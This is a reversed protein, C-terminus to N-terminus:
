CWGNWTHAPLSWELCFESSERWPASLATERAGAFVMLGLSGRSAVGRQEGRPAEQAGGGRPLSIRLWLREIGDSYGKMDDLLRTEAREHLGVSSRISALNGSVMTSLGSLTSHMTSLGSRIPHLGHLGAVTRVAEGSSSVSDNCNSEDREEVGSRLDPVSIFEGREDNCETGECASTILISSTHLWLSTASGSSMLVGDM